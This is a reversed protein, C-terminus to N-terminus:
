LASIKILPYRDISSGGSIACGLNCTINGKNRCVFDSYYNGVTGNDWWNFGNDYANQRYNNSLSNSYITNNSSDELRIGFGLNGRVINQFIRNGNAKLLHIGNFNNSVNNGTITNNNSLVSIGAGDGDRLNGSNIIGFGQVMVGNATITIASGSATADLVPMDLGRLTIPKDIMLHDYYTGAGVEVVDGPRAAYIAAPLSEGPGVRLTGAQAQSAILILIVALKYVM